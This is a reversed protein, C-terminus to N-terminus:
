LLDQTMKKDRIKRGKTLPAQSNQSRINRLHTEDEDEKENKGKEIEEDEKGKPIVLTFRERKRSCSAM